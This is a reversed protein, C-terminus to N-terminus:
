KTRPPLCGTIYGDNIFPIGSRKTEEEADIEEIKCMTNTPMIIMSIRVVAPMTSSRSYSGTEKSVINFVKQHILPRDTRLYRSLKWTVNNITCTEDRLFLVLKDHMDRMFRVKGSVFELEHVITWWVRSKTNRITSADFRMCSGGGVTFADYCANCADELIRQFPVNDDEQIPADYDPHYEICDVTKVKAVHMLLNEFQNGALEPVFLSGDELFICEEQRLWLDFLHIQKLQTRTVLYKRDIFRLKIVDDDDQRCRKHPSQMICSVSKVIGCDVGFSKGGSPM